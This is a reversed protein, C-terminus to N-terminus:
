WKEKGKKDQFIDPQKSFFDYLIKHAIEMDSEYRKAAVKLLTSDMLKVNKNHLLLPGMIWSFNTWLKM